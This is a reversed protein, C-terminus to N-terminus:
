FNLGFMLPLHDSFVAADPRGDQRVLRQSPSDTIIKLQLTDFRESLEPRILVQDFLHWFYSVHESNDYYYSGATAM